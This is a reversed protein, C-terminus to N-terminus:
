YIQRHCYQVNNSMVHIIAFNRKVQSFIFIGRPPMDWHPRYMMRTFLFAYFPYRKRWGSRLTRIANLTDFVPFYSFFPYSIWLDGPCTRPRDASLTPFKPAIGRHARVTNHESGRKGPIPHWFQELSWGRKPHKQSLSKRPHHVPGLSVHGGGGGGRSFVYLRSILTRPLHRFELCQFQWLYNIKQIHYLFKRVIFICRTQSHYFANKIQITSLLSLTILATDSDLNDFGLWLWLWWRQTWIQTRTMVEFDSDSDDGWLGLGRTRTLFFIQTRTVFRTTWMNLMIKNIKWFMFVFLLIYRIDSYVACCPVAAVAQVRAHSPGSDRNRLGLGLWLSFFHVRTRTRTFHVRTGIRTVCCQIHHMHLAKLHRLSAATWVNVHMKYCDRICEVLFPLEQQCKKIYRSFYTIFITWKFHLAHLIKKRVNQTTIWHGYGGSYQSIM